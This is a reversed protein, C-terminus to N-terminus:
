ISHSYLSKSYGEHDFIDVNKDDNVSSYDYSTLTFEQLGYVPPAVGEFRVQLIERVDGSLADVVQAYQLQEYQEQSILNFFQNPLTTAEDVSILSLNLSLIQFEENDLILHFVVDMSIENQNVGDFTTIIASPLIFFLSLVSFIITNM